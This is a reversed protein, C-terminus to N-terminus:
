RTAAEEPPPPLHRCMGSLEDPFVPTLARRNARSRSPRSFLLATTARRPTASHRKAPIDTISIAAFTELAVRSVRVLRNVRVAPLGEAGETALYGGTLEYAATRGIRLVRAEVTLLDPIPM